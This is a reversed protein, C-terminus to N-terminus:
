ADCHLQERTLGFHAKGSAALRGTTLDTVSVKLVGAQVADSLQDIVGEVRLRAGVIVPVKFQLSLSHLICNEGPLHVGALRSVLASLLAGHVVRDPYGRSRAFAADAHLRNTDGSLAIFQDLERASVQTDFAARQGISLDGFALVAGAGSM